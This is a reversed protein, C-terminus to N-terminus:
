EGRGPEYVVGLNIANSSRDAGEDSYEQWIYNYAGVVSWRRTLRWELGVDGALYERTPFTSGPNIAEDRSARVGALVSLRPQLARAARLRLQNRAVVAGAGNPGVTRTLDVFLSTTPYNWRGGLGGTWNTEEDAGRRDIKTQQGGVRVYMESVQTVASRWEVEAGYADADIDTRYRSSRGRLTISSRESPLWGWGAYVGYDTFDAYTDQIDIDYDADLYHGGAEVRHRQSVAYRWYPEVRLQDRRNRIVARGADGTLPNGLDGGDDPSPLESRAVDQRAWVGRIGYNQRQTRQEYLAGLFYDNTDEDKDDPFYRAVVRPAIEANRVPDVLRLPLEADLVAGSVDIETGAFGLRYNDNYEYGLELRPAFEWNQAGANVCPLLALAATMSVLRYHIRM